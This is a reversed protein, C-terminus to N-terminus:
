NITRRRFGILNLSYTLLLSTCILDIDCNEFKITDSLSAIMDTIKLKPM